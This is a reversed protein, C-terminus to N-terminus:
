EAYVQNQTVRRARYRRVDAPPHAPMTPPQVPGFFTAVLITLLMMRGELPFSSLASSPPAAFRRGRRSFVFFGAMASAPRAKM